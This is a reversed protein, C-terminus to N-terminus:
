EHAGGGHRRNRFPKQGIALEIPLGTAWQMLEAGLEDRRRHALAAPWDNARRVSEAVADECANARAASSSSAGEFALVSYRFHGHRGRLYTLLDRMFMRSHKLRTYDILRMLNALSQSYDAVVCAERSIRDCLVFASGSALIQTPLPPSGTHVALPVYSGPQDPHDTVFLRNRYIM